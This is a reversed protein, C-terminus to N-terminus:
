KNKAEANKLEQCWSKGEKNNRLTWSGGVDWHKIAMVNKFKNCPLLLYLKVGCQNTAQVHKAKPKQFTVCLDKTKKTGGTHPTVEYWNFPFVQKPPVIYVESRRGKMARRYYYPGTEYDVNVSRTNIKKISQPVILQQSINSQVISGMFSNSVYKGRKFKNCDFPKCDSVSDNNCIIFQKKRKMANQRIQELKQPSVIQMGTDFYFGGKHYMIEYRMLDSVLAFKRSANMKMATQIKNWTFPFNKKTLDRNGWLRHKWGKLKKIQKRNFSVLGKQPHKITRGIWIQHVIKPIAESMLLLFSFRRM